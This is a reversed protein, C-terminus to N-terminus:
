KAPKVKIGPPFFPGRDPNGSPATPPLEPTIPGPAPKGPLTVVEATELLKSTRAVDGIAERGARTGVAKESLVQHSRLATQLTKLLRDASERVLIGRSEDRWKKEVAVKPDQILAAIREKAMAAAGTGFREVFPLTVFDEYVFWREAPDAIAEIEPLRKAIWEGAEVKAASPAAEIRLWQRMGEPPSKPLEHTLEPWVDLTTAAGLKRFYVLAGLSPPYNGDFRGCGIYIPTGGAFKPAAARKEFLGGSLILGGALTRDRDLLMASHWGGKSFGGVYIRRPDVSLSGVLTKKIGNLFGMGDAIEQDNQAGGAGERYTMGVLVFDKGGTMEHIFVASPAGGAGHYFVIAPYKKSADFDDPKWIPLTAGLAPWPLEIWEARVTGALLALSLLCKSITKM